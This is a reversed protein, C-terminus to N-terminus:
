YPWFQKRTERFSKSLCKIKEKKVKLMFAWFNASKATLERSMKLTNVILTNSFNKRLWNIATKDGYELIRAIIYKQYVNMDLKDFDVDWFYKRLFEPLKKAM